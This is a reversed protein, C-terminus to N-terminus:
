SCVAGGVNGGGEKIKWVGLRSQNRWSKKRVILLNGTKLNRVFTNVSLQRKLQLWGSGLEGAGGGEKINWVGVRRRMDKVSEEM